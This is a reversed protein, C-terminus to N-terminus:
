KGEFRALELCWASGDMGFGLVSVKNLREREIKVGKGIVPPIVGQGIILSAIVADNIGDANSVWGYNGKFNVFRKGELWKKECLDFKGIGNGCGVVLEGGFEMKCGESAEVFSHMEVEAYIRAGRELAHDLNELLIGASGEGLVLKQGKLMQYEECESLLGQEYLSNLLSENVEVSAGFAVASKAENNRILQCAEVISQIGSASTTTPGKYGLAKSINSATFAGTRLYSQHSDPIQFSESLAIQSREKENNPHFHSNNFAEIM